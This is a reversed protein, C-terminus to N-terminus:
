ESEEEDPMCSGCLFAGPKKPDEGCDVGIEGEVGSGCGSCVTPAPMPGFHRGCDECRYRAYDGESAYSGNYPGDGIFVTDAGALHQGGCSPCYQMDILYTPTM